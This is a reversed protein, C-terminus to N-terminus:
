QPHDAGVPIMTTLLTVSDYVLARCRTFLDNKVAYDHGEPTSLDVGLLRICETTHHLETFRDIFERAKKYTLEKSAARNEADFYLMGLAMIAGTVAGCTMQKRGFGAGFGAAVSQATSTELKLRDCLATLVAQSCNYGEKFLGIANEAMTM